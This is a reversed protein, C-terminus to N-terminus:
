QMQVPSKKCPIMKVLIQKVPNFKIAYIFPNTTTYLFAIFTVADYYGGMYSLSSILAATALLYYVNYPLWAITYLASVLIM